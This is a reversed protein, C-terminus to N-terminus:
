QGYSFGDGARDVFIPNTLVISRGFFPRNEGGTVEVMYFADATPTATLTGSFRLGLQTPDQTSADIPVTRIVEGNELLRLETASVWSAAQVRVELAVPGETVLVDGIEAERGSGRAFVEVFPGTAAIARGGKLAPWIAPLDISPVDEAGTRVYTRAYGVGSFPSHTDSSGVATLRRGSKTVAIVDQVVAPYDDLRKGNLVETTDPNFWQRESIATVPDLGVYSFVGQGGRPHNAQVIEAGAERMAAAVEHPERVREYAGDQDYVFWAPYWYSQPVNKLPYGNMHGYLMSMEIGMVTKVRSTLGLTEIEPTYDTAADHDTSVLVDVNEAAASLVRLRMPVETDSSRSSHVHLDASVWGRRDVTRRVSGSVTVTQNSTITVNQQAYEYEPGRSMLVTYNGERLFFNDYPPHSYHQHVMPAGLRADHGELVFVRVPTPGLDQGEFGLETAQVKVLGFGSLTHTLEQPETGATVDLELSDLVRDELAITVRYHGPELEARATRTTPDVRTSTFFQPRDRDDFREFDLVLHDDDIAFGADRDLHLLLPRLPTLMAAPWSKRMAVLASDVDRPAVTLYYREEISGNTQLVKATAGIPVVEFQALLVEVPTGRRHLVWSAPADSAAAAIFPQDGSASDPSPGFKDLFVRNQDGRLMVLGCSVERPELKREDKLTVVMEITDSNPELRYELTMSAELPDRQLIADLFPIGADEGIFRIIATNGDRGDNVIEVREPRLSRLDCQAFIEQLRDDGPMGRLGLDVLSGGYLSWGATAGPAKIIFRVKDNQVLYDGVKGDAEVGGILESAQEILKINPEGGPPPEGDDGCGGFTSLAMIFAAAAVVAGVLHRVQM